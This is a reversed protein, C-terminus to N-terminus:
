ISWQVLEEYWGNYVVECDSPIEEKIFVSYTDTLSDNWFSIVNQKMKIFINMLTEDDAAQTEFEDYWGNYLVDSIDSTEALIGEYKNQLAEGCWGDVINDNVLRLLSDNKGFSEFTKLNEM